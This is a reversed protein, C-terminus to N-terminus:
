QCPFAMLRFLNQAHDHLESAGLGDFFGQDRSYSHGNERAGGDLSLKLVAKELFDGDPPQLQLSIEVLDGMSLADKRGYGVGKDLEEFL